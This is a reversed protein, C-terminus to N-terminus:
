YAAGIFCCMGGVEFHPRLTWSIKVPVQPLQVFLCRGGSLACDGIESQSTLESRNNTLDLIRLGHLREVLSPLHSLRCQAVNLCQLRSLSTLSHGIAGAGGDEAGLENDELDLTELGHLESLMQMCCLYEHHEILSGHVGGLYHGTLLRLACIEQHLHCGVLLDLLLTGQLEILM